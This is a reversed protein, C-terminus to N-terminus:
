VLDGFNGYDVHLEECIIELASGSSFRITVELPPVKVGIQRSRKTSEQFTSSIGTSIKDITESGAVHWHTHNSAAVGAAALVISKGEWQPYGLDPPCRMALRIMQNPMTFDYAIQLLSCDHIWELEKFSTPRMM